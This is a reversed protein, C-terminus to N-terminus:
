INTCQCCPQLPVAVIATITKSCQNESTSSRSESTVNHLAQLHYYQYYPWLLVTALAPLTRSAVGNGVLVVAAGLTVRLPLDVIVTIVIHKVNYRYEGCNWSEISVTLIHEFELGKISM